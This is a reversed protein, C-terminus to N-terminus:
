ATAYIALFTVGVIGVAFVFEMLMSILVTKMAKQGSKTAQKWNGLRAYETVMVALTGGIITGVFPIPILIGGVIMGVFFAVLGMCSTGGGRYGLLPMWLGSTVGIVMMVTIVGAYGLPLRTFNTLVGFIMAIAWELASVPVAPIIILALSAVMAVLAVVVLVSEAM